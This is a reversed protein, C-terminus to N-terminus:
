IKGAERLAGIIVASIGGTILTVASGWELYVGSLTAVGGIVQAVRPWSPLAPVSLGRVRPKAVRVRRPEDAVLAGSFLEDTLTQTSM